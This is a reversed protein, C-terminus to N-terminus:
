LNLRNAEIKDVNNGQINFYDELAIDILYGQHNTILFEYFNVIRCRDIYEILGTLALVIDIYKSSNIYTKDRKSIYSGNFITHIKILSNEIM